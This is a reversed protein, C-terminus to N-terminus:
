QVRVPDGPQVRRRGQDILLTNAPLDVAAPRGADAAPLEVFEAHNGSSDLILVGLANNRRVVFDAPVALSPDRWAIRGDSGPAAPQDVFFLRVQQQRSSRSIVPNVRDLRIPWSRPGSIFRIEPAQRLGDILEPAVNAVVEIEDLAILEVLPTGAAALAGLGVLRAHVVGDFPARIVTRELMLETHALEQEAARKEATALRLRTEAELLQDDSVFREPALRRAREARITAMELAAEAMELRARASESQIRYSDNDLELLLAGRDVTDGPRVAFAVVRAGVEASIVAENLSEVRAAAQQELQIAVDGLPRVTVPEAAMSGIAFWLSCAVVALRMKM